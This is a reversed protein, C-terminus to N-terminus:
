AYQKLLPLDAWKKSKGFNKPVNTFNPNNQKM